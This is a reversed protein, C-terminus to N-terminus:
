TAPVFSELQALQEEFPLIQQEGLITFEHISLRYVIEAEKDITKTWERITDEHIGKFTIIANANQRIHRHLQTWFRAALIISQDDNGGLQIMRKLGPEVKHPSQYESAEDLVILGPVGPKGTTQNPAM